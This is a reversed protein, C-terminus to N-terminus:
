PRAELLRLNLYYAGIEQGDATIFVPSLRHSGASLAHTFRVQVDQPGVPAEALVRGDARLLARVAPIAVGPQQRFPRDAGPVGPEAPLAAAIATNAEPPWRRLEFAYQGAVPTQVAWFGGHGDAGAPRQKARRADSGPRLYGAANRIHGQNWPPMTGMWDHATLELGPSRTPDLVFEPATAFGPSLEEWWSEYFARLRQAQEPHADILDRKQGPDTSVDYLERGNILRWSASMVASNKWKVPKAVRQSDTVLIRDRSWASADAAPDLLPRLSRGDLKRDAPLPAGAVDLLTPLLDVAHALEGRTHHRDWGGAPWHAFFPVRHGGEYESGKNGRMGANFVAAGNATGNDTTFIFLTNRDAGIAQLHERLAGVNHDINAIMAFFTAVGAPQGPYRDLWEQPAHLPGHPANTALWVFFPKGAAHSEGIFRKAERFFVDTCYGEAPVARGNHLYHGDFYANNWLDPTQGVGGGGHVYAEGFGHDSPRFPHADGLHWKGFIGTAYGRERLQAAVTRESAPLLSRGSITHWVGTRNSWRGTLLAARTPSCTPASHFDSLQSSEGALRDLHPTKLVPNGHVSLDGYGQDDTLVVVINPPPASSGNGPFSALLAAALLFPISRM